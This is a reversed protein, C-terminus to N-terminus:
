RAVFFAGDDDGNHVRESLVIREAAHGIGADGCKRHLQQRADGSRLHHVHERAVPWDGAIPRHDIRRGLVSASGIIIVAAPVTGAVFTKTM